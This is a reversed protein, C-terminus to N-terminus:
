EALVVVKGPLEGADSRAHVGPLDSLRVRHSIDLRLDGQDVMGVLSASPM